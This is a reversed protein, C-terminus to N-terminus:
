MSSMHDWVSITHNMLSYLPLRQGRRKHCAGTAHMIVMRAACRALDHLAESSRPGRAQEDLLVAARRREDETAAQRGRQGSYEDVRQKQASRWNKRNNGGGIGALWM